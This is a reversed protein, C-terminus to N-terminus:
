DSQLRSRFDDTGKARDGVALCDCACGCRGGWGVSGQSQGVMEGGPSSHSIELNDELM